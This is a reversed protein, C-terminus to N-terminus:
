RSEMKFNKLSGTTYKRNDAIKYHELKISISIITQKSWPVIMCINAKNSFVM